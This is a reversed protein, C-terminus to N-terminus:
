RPKETDFRAPFKGLRARLQAGHEGSVFQTQNGAPVGAGQEVGIEFGFLPLYEILEGQKAFAARRNENVTFRGARNLVLLVHGQGIPSHEGVMLDVRITTLEGLKRLEARVEAYRESEVM